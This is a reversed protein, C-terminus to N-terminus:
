LLQTNGPFSSTPLLPSQLAGGSGQTASPLSPPRPLPMGELGAPNASQGLTRPLGSGSLTPLLSGTM